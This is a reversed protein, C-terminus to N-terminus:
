NDKNNISYRYTSNCIDNINMVSYHDTVSSNMMGGNYSWPPDAYIIQYKKSPFPIM